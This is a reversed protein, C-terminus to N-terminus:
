RSLRCGQQLWCTGDSGREVTQRLTNVSLLNAKVESGPGAAAAVSRQLWCSAPCWVRREEVRQFLSRGASIFQEPSFLLVDSPVFHFPWWQLLLRRRSALQWMMKTKTAARCLASSQPYTTSTLQGNSHADADASYFWLSTSSKTYFHGESQLHTKHTQPLAHTQGQLFLNPDNFLSFLLFHFISIHLTSLLYFMIICMTFFPVSLLQM